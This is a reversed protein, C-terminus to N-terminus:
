IQCSGRGHRVEGISINIVLGCCRQESDQRTADSTISLVYPVNIGIESFRILAKADPSRTGQEYNSITKRHLVTKSALDEQSLSLRMREERIREGVLREKDNM